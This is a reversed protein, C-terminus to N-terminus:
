SNGGTTTGLEAGYSARTATDTEIAAAQRQRNSTDAPAYIPGTHVPAAPAPAAKSKGGCM